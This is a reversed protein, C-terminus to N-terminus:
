KKVRELSGCASVISKSPGAGNHTYCRDLRDPTTITIFHTGDADSGIVTKGDLGIALTLPEWQDPHDTAFTRGWVLRGDQGEIEFTVNLDRLRPPDAPTQSGPHYANSGFVLSRSSGVWTGKLDPITDQAAAAGALGVFFALTVLIYM